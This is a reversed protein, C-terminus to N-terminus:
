NYSCETQQMIKDALRQSAGNNDIPQFYEDYKQTLLELISKENDVINAVHTAFENKTSAGLVLGLFREPFVPNGNNNRLSKQNDYRPLGRIDNYEITIKGIKLMDLALGSYFSICFLARGGLVFPHQDSYCWSEGYKDSGLGDMYIKGDIGDLSEKPHSKVVIRLKYQNFLVDAIIRLSSLKRDPPIYPSAPRGILFVYSNKQYIPDYPSRSFSSLYNKWGADHRPIGLHFINEPLVGFHNKYMSNELDSMNFVIVDNRSNRTEDGYDYLWTAALGHYMSFKTVKKLQNRLEYNVAKHEVTIDCFIGDFDNSFYGKKINQLGILREYALSLLRAMSRIVKGFLRFPPYKSIKGGIFRRSVTVLTNVLIPYSIRSKADVLSSAGYWRGSMGRYAIADAFKDALEFLHSKESELILSSPEPFVFVINIKYKNKLKEIVPLWVDVVGFGPSCWFLFNNRRKESQIIKTTV